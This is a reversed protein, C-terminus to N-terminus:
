ITAGYFEQCQEQGKIDIEGWSRGIELDVKSPVLLPASTRMIEAVREAHDKNKVSLDVEDHVQLQLKIGAKDLNVMAQKMQDAASGQILRNLAKHTWEFNGVPDAPFHIARGLLTRIIGKNLAREEVLKALKPIFPVRDSFQDIIKQGEVGAVEMKKGYITKIRVPLGLTRCLKAGGMSYCKALFVAKADKRNLGTMDAMMQHYDTSPDNRYRDGAAKAGPLNLLESYHVSLRPEQQSYDSSAWLQGPEPLYIGRWVAGLTPHRIPQNQLSPLKASLRGGVSGETKAKKSLNDNDGKDSKLQNFTTHVRNQPTLFKYTQGCFNTRMTNFARAENLMTAIPHDLGALFDKTISDKGTKATKPLEVGLSKILPALAATTKLDSPTIRVMSKANIADCLEQEMKLLHATVMDLRKLSVLVGRRRMKILVPLLECELMYISWLGQDELLREQKRLIKLPLRADQEAYGGVFKPPLKWLESKPHAQFLAATEKLLTEDKGSLNYVKALPDLGYRLRHENLLPEAIQIDRISANKFIVGDEAMYDLDYPLNAGGLVGTFKKSQDRLYDFVQDRDLNGESAHGFPLYFGPGDEFAFSVGIAKGDRRVGIGLKKLDPDKTEIDFGVRKCSGWDPLSSVSPAVWSTQPLFATFPLQHM